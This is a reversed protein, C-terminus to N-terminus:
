SKLYHKHWGRGTHIKRVGCAPCGKGASAARRFWAVPHSILEWVDKWFYDKPKGNMNHVM